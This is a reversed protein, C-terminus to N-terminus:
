RASQPRTRAVTIRKLPSKVMASSAVWSANSAATCRQRSSPSGSCGRPHSMWVARLMAMSRIRRFFARVVLSVVYRRRDPHSRRRARRSPSRRRGASAQDEGATVRGEGELGLDRQRQAREDAELCVLNSASEHHGHRRHRLPQHPRLAFDCIGANRIDYWLRALHGLTQVGHERHEVQHEVFPYAAVRPAESTRVSREASAMRKVRTTRASLPSLGGASTM